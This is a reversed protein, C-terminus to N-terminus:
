ASYDADYFITQLISIKLKARNRITTTSNNLLPPAYAQLFQPTCKASTHVHGDPSRIHRYPRYRGGYLPSTLLVPLRVCLLDLTGSVVRLMRSHSTLDIRRSEAAAAPYQVWRCPFELSSASIELEPLIRPPPSGPGERSGVVARDRHKDPNRSARLCSEPLSARLERGGVLWLRIGIDIPIGLRLVGVTRSGSRLPLPAVEPKIIEM